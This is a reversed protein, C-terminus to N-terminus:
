TELKLITLPLFFDVVENFSFAATPHKHKKLILEYFFVIELM